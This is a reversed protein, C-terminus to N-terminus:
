RISRGAGKTDSSRRSVKGGAVKKLQSQRYERLAYLADLYAALKGRVDPTRAHHVAALEDFTRDLDDALEHLPDLM